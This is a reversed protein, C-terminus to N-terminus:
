RQMGQSAGLREAIATRVATEFESCSAADHVLLDRLQRTIELQVGRRSSGRNCINVPSTGAHDGGIVSLASFGAANLRRAVRERLEADLGGIDVRSEKGQLGHVAVVIKSAGVLKLCEPDDFRSSTLHLTRADNSAKIGEFIYLSFDSRAISSAIEGTSPEITGAHPAIIAVPSNRLRITRRFNVGEREHKALEGFSEFETRM